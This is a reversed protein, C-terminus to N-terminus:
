PTAPLAARERRVADLAAQAGAARAADGANKAELLQETAEMERVPILHTDDAPKFAGFDIAALVDRRRANEEGEGVGYTLFFDRIKTKVAPDLDKRWVIPDEPIRPSTWIVRVANSIEPRSRAMRKINTSNNTAADITGGAVAVLNAEHNARRVQRFCSQPDINRPAFLYTVPALTGSTSEVDGLGFALSKDCRLLDDLTTRSKAPVIVVSNYGDVGSPDSSRVFVEANARRVAQLGSNNSFWGVQVQGAKMAEILLTYNGAFYPEIDLGTEKEMDALFPTWLTRLNLSNETSLISFVVRTPADAAGEAAKEGCGALLLAASV